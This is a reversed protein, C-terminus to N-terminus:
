EEADDRPRPVLPQLLGWLAVRRAEPVPEQGEWDLIAADAFLFVEGGGYGCMALLGNDYVHCSRSGEGTDFRRFHGALNVPFRYEYHEVLREGDVQDEDFLLKVGMRDLIPSLLVVDQPRRRDGIGYDTHRTLMPDALILAKGGRVLFKDFAVNESPALPRPQALLVRDLSELAETELTDLPVIEFETELETRVWDPEGGDSLISAIDGAEGWYIPLTTFLGLRPKAEEVEAVGDQDQAASSNCAALSLLFAAAIASNSRSLM